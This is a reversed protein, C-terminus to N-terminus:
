GHPSFLRNAELTIVTTLPTGDPEAVSTFVGAHAEMKRDFSLNTFPLVYKGESLTLSAAPLQALRV